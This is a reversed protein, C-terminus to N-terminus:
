TKEPSGYDRAQKFQERAKDESEITCPEVRIWGQGTREISEGQLITCVNSVSTQHHADSM